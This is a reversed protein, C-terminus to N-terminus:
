PLEVLVLARKEGEEEFTGICTIHVRVSQEPHSAPAPTPAPASAPLSALASPLLFSLALLAIGLGLLLAEIMLTKKM